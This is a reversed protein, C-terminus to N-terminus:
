HNEKIELSLTLPNKCIALMNIYGYDCLDDFSQNKHKGPSNLQVIFNLFM